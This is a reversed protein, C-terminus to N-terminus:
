SCRILIKVEDRSTDMLAEFAEAAHRLPITSTILPEPDIAGSAILEIVRPWSTVPYCYVGRYTVDRLTLSTAADVTFPTPGLATQVVTGGLRVAGLCADIARQNGSCEICVDAGAGDTRGLVIDVLNEARPDVAVALELQEVRARRADHPESLYVETAGAARACMAVLLGIPGGGTIVVVDGAQVPASQVAHLAVATPEVLAGVSNSVNAPLPFVQDDGFVGQEALGGWPASYGVAALNECTQERGARCQRCRGCFRQPMGAVRDGVMVSTVKEGINEVVGSFEHGMTVPRQTGTLPHPASPTYLPGDTFEHLDTGCIGCHTIRVLVEHPGLKGPPDVDDLRVDRNGHYRFAQM